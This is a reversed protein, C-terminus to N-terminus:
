DKKTKKSVVVGTIALVMFMAAPMVITDGTNPNPIDQPDFELWVGYLITNDEIVFDPPTISSDTVVFDANTATPSYAWGVFTYGPVALNGTNGLVTVTDPTTYPSNGDVPVTGTGNTGAPFNAEYLVVAESAQLLVVTAGNPYLSANLPIAMEIQNGNRFAPYFEVPSSTDVAGTALTGQVAFYWVNPVSGYNAGQAGTAPRPNTVSIETLDGDQMWFGVVNTDTSPMFMITPLASRISPYNAINPNGIYFDRSSM